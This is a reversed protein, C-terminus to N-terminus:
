SAGGSKGVIAMGEGRWHGFGSVLIRDSTVDDGSEGEDFPPYFGDNALSLAALAVGLPFHAEVTHGFMDGFCRIDPNDELVKMEQRYAAGAGSAGSLVPTGADAGTKKLLSRGRAITADDDRPGHDAEVAEIRAYASKGRAAAHGASELVLFVGASGLIIGGHGNAARDAISRPKERWLYQGLEFTLMMDKREGCYAGGVLLHDSQGSRIRATATQIASIGASEEGM